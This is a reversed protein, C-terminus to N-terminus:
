RQDLQARLRVIQREHSAIARRTADADRPTRPSPPAEPESRATVEAAIITAPDLGCESCMVAGTFASHATSHTRHATRNAVHGCFLRLRWEVLESPPPKRSFVLALRRLTEDSLPPAEAALRTAHERLAESERQRRVQTKTPSWEPGPDPLRQYGEM